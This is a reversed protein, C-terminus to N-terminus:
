ASADTWGVKRALQDAVAREAPTMDTTHPCEWKGFWPDDDSRQCVNTFEPPNYVPGGYSHGTTGDARRVYATIDGHENAIGLVGTGDAVEYRELYGDDTAPWHRM